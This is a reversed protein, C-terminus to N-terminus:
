IWRTTPWIPCSSIQTRPFDFVAKQMQRVHFQM